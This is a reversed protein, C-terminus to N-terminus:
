ALDRVSGAARTDPDAVESDEQVGRKLGVFAVVAGAAMIGAM